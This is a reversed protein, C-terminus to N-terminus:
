NSCLRERGGRGKENMQENTRRNQWQSIEHRGRRSTDSRMRDVTEKKTDRECLQQQQKTYINIRCVTRCFQPPHWDLRVGRTYGDVYADRADRTHDLFSTGLPVNGHSKRALILRSDVWCTADQVVVPKQKALRRYKSARDLTGRFKSLQFSRARLFSVWCTTSIINARPSSNSRVSTRCARRCVSVYSVNSARSRERDIVRQRPFSCISVVPKFVSQKGGHQLENTPIKANCSNWRCQSMANSKFTVILHSRYSQFKQM